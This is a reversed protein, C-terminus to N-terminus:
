AAHAIAASMVTVPENQIVTTTNVIVDANATGVSLNSCRALGAGDKIRALAAVGGAIATTARPAGLMTITGGAESFSPKALTVVALVAGYGATCLELTAPDPDGDFAAVVAQM